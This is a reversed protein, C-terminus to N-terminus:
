LLFSLSSLSYTYLRFQRCILPSWSLCDQTDRIKYICHLLTKVISARKNYKTELFRIIYKILFDLKNSSVEVFMLILAINKDM